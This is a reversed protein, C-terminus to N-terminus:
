SGPTPPEFWFSSSYQSSYYATFNSRLLYYVLEPPWVFGAERSGRSFCLIRRDAKALLLYFRAGALNERWHIIGPKLETLGSTIRPSCTQQQEAEAAGISYGHPAVETGHPLYDGGQGRALVHIGWGKGEIRCSLCLKQSGQTLEEGPM